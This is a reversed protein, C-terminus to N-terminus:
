TNFIDKDLFTPPEFFGWIDLIKQSDGENFGYKTLSGIIEFM